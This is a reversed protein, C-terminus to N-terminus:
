RIQLNLCDNLQVPKERHAPQALPELKEKHPNSLAICAADFGSALLGNVLAGGMAGAGIVAIRKM